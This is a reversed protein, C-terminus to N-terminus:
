TRLLPIIKYRLSRYFTPDRYMATVNISLDLLLEEMVRPDHLVREQLASISPLGEERVLNRVRRRLSGPAYERFDFGYFHFVAELLLRLELDELPDSAHPKAESLAVSTVPVPPAM